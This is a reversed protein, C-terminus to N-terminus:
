IIFAYREKLAIAKDNCDIQLILENPTYKKQQKILINIHSQFFYSMEDSGTEKPKSLYCKSNAFYKQLDVVENENKYM